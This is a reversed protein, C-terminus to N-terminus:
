KQFTIFSQNYRKIQCSGVEPVSRTHARAHSSQKVEVGGEDKEEERSFSITIIITIIKTTIMIIYINHHLTQRDRFIIVEEQSDGTVM